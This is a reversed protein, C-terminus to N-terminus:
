GREGPTERFRRVTFRAVEYPEDPDIGAKQLAVGVQQEVSDIGDLDPLLVGRRHGASVIVGFRKPDLDDLASPESEGLVDVSYSLSRLDGAEVPSFRPDGFAASAANRVIERGLDPEAPQLTGICGRLQGSQKICVFCAARQRYVDEEPADPPPTRRVMAEVCARAYAAPGAVSEPDPGASMESM